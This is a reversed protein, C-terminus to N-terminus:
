SIKVNLVNNKYLKGLQNITNGFCKLVFIKTEPIEMRPVVTDQWMFYIEKEKGQM